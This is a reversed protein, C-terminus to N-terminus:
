TLFEGTNGLRYTKELPVVKLNWYNIYTSRLITFKGPFNTDISSHTPQNNEYIQISNLIGTIYNAPM